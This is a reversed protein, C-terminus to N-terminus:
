RALRPELGRPSMERGNQEFAANGIETVEQIVHFVPNLEPTRYADNEFNLGTPFLLAHLKPKDKSHLNHWFTPLHEIFQAVYNICTEMEKADINAESSEVELSVLQLDYKQKSQKYEELTYVEQELLDKIKALKAKVLTIQKLKAEKIEISNRYQQTYADTVIEKFLDLDEKSPTIKNLLELFSKEVKDKPLIQRATCNSNGCQYYGYYKTKGKSYCGSLMKGCSTCRLTKALPFEPNAQLKGIRNASNNALIQQALQFETESIMPQHKGKARVNLGNTYLVGAYFENRFLQSIRKKDLLNGKDSKVGVKILYELIEASRYNGTLLMDWAQKVPAFYEPHPVIHKTEKDRIYGTPPHWVWHGQNLRSKMGNITREIRLENDFQATAAMITEFFRGSPSDETPESISILRVGYKSLIAKIALHNEVSRSFRDYKYVVFFEIGNKKNACYELASKLQTREIYRASEGEERFVKVLKFGKRTCFDKGTSEQQDLSTNEVQEDSSVRTYLIAKPNSM